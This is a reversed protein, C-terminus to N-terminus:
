KRKGIEDEEVVEKGGKKEGRTWIPRHIGMLMM